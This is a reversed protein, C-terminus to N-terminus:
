KAFLKFFNGGHSKEWPPVKINKFEDLITYQLFVCVYIFDRM